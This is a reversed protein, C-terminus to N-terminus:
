DNKSWKTKYQRYLWLFIIAGIVGMIIGAPNLFQGRGLLWSILGGVYSGAVGIGVTPLCGVPDPGPHLIKAFFGVILGYILWGILWLM